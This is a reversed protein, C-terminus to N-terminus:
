TQILMLLQVAVAAGAKGPKVHKASGSGRRKVKPKSQKLAAYFQHDASACPAYANTPPPAPWPTHAAAISRGAAAM